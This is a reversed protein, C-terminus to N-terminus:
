RNKTTLHKNFFRRSKRMVYNRFLIATFHGTPIVVTEPNGIKERLEMGKSLPTVTDYRGLVMLTNKSNIYPAYSIPDFVIVSQLYNYLREKTMNYTELHKKRKRVIGKETTHTLVWPLDGASLVFVGAKVRTDVASILAAEIGGMSIGLVGIRSQDINPQLAAWDLVIKNNIIAQHLVSNLGDLTKLRKLTKLRQVIM